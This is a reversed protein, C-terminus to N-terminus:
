RIQIQVLAHSLGYKIELGVESVQFPVEIRLTEKDKKEPIKYRTHM